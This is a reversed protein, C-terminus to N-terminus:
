DHFLGANMNLLNAPDYQLKLSHLKSWGAAGLQQVEQTKSLLPSFPLYVTGEAQFVAPLIEKENLSLIKLHDAGFVGNRVIKYLRMHAVLSEGPLRFTSTGFHSTLLPACYIRGAGLSWDPNRKLENLFAETKSWPLYFSVYPKPLDLSGAAVASDWGKTNRNAYDFYSVTRWPGTPAGKLRSIEEPVVSDFISVHALYTFEDTGTKRVLHGGLAMVSQTKSLLELDEMIESYSVTSQYEFDRSLVVKPAVMLKMTVNTIAAFQGMGGLISEFLSANKNRSCTTITGDILVIELEVVHDIVAGYRLSTEGIGGVSTTGGVSTVITDPLVYPVYGSPFTQAVVDRWIMGPGLKVLDNSLWVLQNLSSTDILYGDQTQTQGYAAGGTGRIAVPTKTQQAHVLLLQVDSANKPQLVGLPTMTVNRGFDKAFGAVAAPDFIYVGEFYPLGFAASSTGISRIARAVEAKVSEGIFLQGAVLAVVSTGSWKLFDRRSNEM